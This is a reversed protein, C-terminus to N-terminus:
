EPQPPRWRPRRRQAKLIPEELHKVRGQSHAQEKPALKCVPGPSKQILSSCPLKLSWPLEGRKAKDGIFGLSLNLKTDQTGNCSWDPSVPAWMKQGLPGGCHGWEFRRFKTRKITAEVKKKWGRRPGNKKERGWSGLPCPLSNSPGHHPWDAKMKNRINAFKCSKRKCDRPM